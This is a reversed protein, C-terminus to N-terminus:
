GGVAAELPREIPQALRRQAWRHLEIDLANADVLRQFLAPGLELRAEGWEHRDSVYDAKTVNAHVEGAFLGPFLDGYVADFRRLSRAFQRTVGVAPWTSLLAIAQDLDRKEARAQLIDGGRLSADSLHITQYNRIVVGNEQSSLAWDVFDRFSGKSAAAHGPQIPDQRM